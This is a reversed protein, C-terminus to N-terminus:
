FYNPMDSSTNMPCYHLLHRHLASTKLLRAITRWSTGTRHERQCSGCRNAQECDRRLGVQFNEEKYHTHGRGVLAKKKKKKADKNGHINCDYTEWQFTREELDNTPVHLSRMKTIEEQTMTAYTKAWLM